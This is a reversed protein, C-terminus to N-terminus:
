SRVTWCVHQPAARCWTQAHWPRWRVQPDGHPFVAAFHAALEASGLEQWKKQWAALTVGSETRVGWRSCVAQWQEAESTADQYGRAAWIGVAKYYEVFEACSLAGDGDIDFRRFLLEERGLRKTLQVGLPEAGEALAAGVGQADGREIAALLVDRRADLTARPVAGMARLADVDESREAALAAEM